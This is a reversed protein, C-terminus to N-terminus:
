TVQLFFVVREGGTRNGITSAAGSGHRGMIDWSHDMCHRRSANETALAALWLVVVSANAGGSRSACPLSSQGTQSRWCPECMPSRNVREHEACPDHLACTRPSSHEERLPRPPTARARLACRACAAHRAGRVPEREVVDWSRPPRERRCWRERARRSATREGACPRAVGVRVRLDAAASCQHRTAGRDSIGRAWRSPM